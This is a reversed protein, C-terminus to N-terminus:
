FLNLANKNSNWICNPVDNCDGVMCQQMLVNLRLRFSCCKESLMKLIKKLTFTQIEILIESFNTGLPGILLIAANTWIIAQRGEPSLDNDSGIITLKGVCTHTVRGWHTLSYSEYIEDNLFVNSM